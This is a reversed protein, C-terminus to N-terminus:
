VINYLTVYILVRRYQEKSCFSQLGFKDLKPWLQFLTGGGITFKCHGLLVGLDPLVLRPKTAPGWVNRLWRGM